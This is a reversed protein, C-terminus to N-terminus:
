ADHCYKGCPFFVGLRGYLWFILILCEFWRAAGWNRLTHTNLHVDLNKLCREAAGPIREDGSCDAYVTLIWSWKRRRLRKWM